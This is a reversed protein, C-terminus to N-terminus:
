FYFDNNPMYNIQYDQNKIGKGTLNVEWEIFKVKPPARCTDYDCPLIWLFIIIFAVCNVISFGLAVKRGTSMSPQDLLQQQSTADGTHDTILCILVLCRFKSLNSLRVMM